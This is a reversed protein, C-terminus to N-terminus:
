SAQRTMDNTFGPPVALGPATVALVKFLEAMSAGPGSTPGPLALRALASDIAASQKADAKRKLVEARQFLGLRGLFTGQAVPGHVVAGAAEAARALAAFDVHATLDAEGPECLPDTPQHAKLAQLTAGPRMKAHGYDIVLLAGTEAAIHGALRSMLRQAALGLEVITGIALGADPAVPTSFGPEPAPALGFCLAGDGNLGVLRECWGAPTRVYHRVPLADFFENAIVITPGPPLSEITEHWAIPLDTGALTHHQEATLPESMEVLHVDLAKPFGPAVRAARLLDAMLTGRGAGLEVLRLLKPEGMGQWVEAAWIGILEGFMQHIEPATVFDGHAGIPLRSRYFGHQPHMAALTMFRELSMPGDEAIMAAIEQGLPTM